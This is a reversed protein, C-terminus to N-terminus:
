MVNCFYCVVCGCVRVCVCVGALKLVRCSAVCLESGLVHSHLVKVSDTLVFSFMGDLRGCAEAGFQEWQPV